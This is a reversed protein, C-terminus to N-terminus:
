ENAGGLKLQAVKALAGEERVAEKFYTNASIEDIMYKTGNSKIKHFHRLSALERGFIHINAFTKFGGQQCFDRYHEYLKGAPVRVIGPSINTERLWSEITTPQRLNDQVLAVSEREPLLYIADGARREDISKWIKLYDVKVLAEWDLLDRATIEYFRRMGTTDYILESISKNSTGIFTCTQKGVHWKHSGLIRWTLEKRSMLAKLAGVSVRDAGEMEECLNIYISSLKKYNRQDLLEALPLEDHLEQFINKCLLRVATSKGGGQKGYINVFMEYTIDEGFIKRKVQWLWHKLVALAPAAGAGELGSVARLWNRLEVDGAQELTGDFKLKERFSELISAREEQHVILLARELDSETFKNAKPNARRLIGYEIQLLATLMEFDGPKGHQDLLDGSLNLKYGQKKLWDKVYARPDQAFGTKNRSAELSSAMKKLIDTFDDSAM